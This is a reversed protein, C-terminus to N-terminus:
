GHGDFVGWFMWDSTSSGDQAPNITQPVEVIKEAHDDEIPNNSPLQVLDYRVVGRGRGVFYSEQSRRLHNTAQEPTLMALVQRRDDGADKSLPLNESLDGAYFQDKEVILKKPPKESEDATYGSLHPIAPPIESSLSHQPRGIATSNESMWSSPNSVRGDQFFFVGGLLTLFAAVSYTPLRMASLVPQPSGNTKFSSSASRSSIIRKPLAIQLAKYCSLRRLPSRRATRFAQIAVQRMVTEVNM